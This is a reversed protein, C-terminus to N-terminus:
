KSVFKPFLDCGSFYLNLEIDQGVAEEAFLWNESHYWLAIITLSGVWWAHSSCILTSNFTTENFLRQNSMAEVVNAQHTYKAHAGYPCIRHSFIQLTEHACIEFRLPQIRIRLTNSHALCWPRITSM